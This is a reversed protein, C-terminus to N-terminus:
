PSYEKPFYLLFLCTPGLTQSPAPPFTVSIVKFLICFYLIVFAWTIIHVGIYSSEAATPIILSPMGSSLNKKIPLIPISTLWLLSPNSTFIRIVYVYTYRHSVHMCLLLIPNSQSQNSNTIRQLSHLVYLSLTWNQIIKLVM